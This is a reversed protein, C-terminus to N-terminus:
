PQFIRRIYKQLRFCPANANSDDPAGEVSFFIKVSLSFEEDPPGGGAHTASVEMRFFESSVPLPKICITACYPVGAFTLAGLDSFAIEFECYRIPRYVRSDIHIAREMTNPWCRRPTVVKRRRRSFDPLLRPVVVFVYCAHNDFSQESSGVM